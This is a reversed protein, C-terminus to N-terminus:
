ILVLTMAVSFVKMAALVLDAGGIKWSSTTVRRPMDPSTRPLIQRAVTVRRAVIGVDLLDLSPMAHGDAMQLHLEIERFLM